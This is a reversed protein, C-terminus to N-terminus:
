AVKTVFPSTKAPSSCSGSSQLEPDACRTAKALIRQWGAYVNKFSEEVQPFEADTIDKLVVHLREADAKAGQLAQSREAPLTEIARGAEEAFEELQLMGLRLSYSNHRRKLQELQARKEELDKEREELDSTSPEFTKGALVICLMVLIAATLPMSCPWRLGLSPHVSKVAEPCRKQVPARQQQKGKRKGIKESSAAVENIAQELEDDFSAPERQGFSPFWRWIDSRGTVGGQLATEPEHECGKAAKKKKAARMKPRTQDTTDPVDMVPRACEDLEPQAQNQELQSPLETSPAVELEDECATCSQGCVSSELGPPAAMPPQSCELGPPPGLDAAVPTAQLGEHLEVTPAVQVADVSELLLGPPPQVSMLYAKLMVAKPIVRGVPCFDEAAMPIHVSSHDQCLPSLGAVKRAGGHFVHGTVKPRTALERGQMLSRRAHEVVDRKQPANSMRQTGFYTLVGALALATLEWALEPLLPTIDRVLKKFVQDLGESQWDEIAAAKELGLHRHLLAREANIAELRERMGAADRGSADEARLVDLKSEVLDVQLMSSGAVPAMDLM